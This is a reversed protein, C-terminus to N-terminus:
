VGILKKWFPKKKRSKRKKLTHKRKRHKRKKSKFTRKRKRSKQSKLKKMIVDEDNVENNPIRILLSPLLLPKLNYKKRHKKNVKFRKKKTKGNKTLIEIGKKGNHSRMKTMKSVVGNNNELREEYSKFIMPM